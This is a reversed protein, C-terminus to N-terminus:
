LSVAKNGETQPAYLLGNDLHVTIHNIHSMFKEDYSSIFVHKLGREARHKNILDIFKLSTEQGLGVSPDDLLLVQPHTMMPRLLCSIKRVRGPIHAPREDKFKELEFYKLVEMVRRNAEEVDVLKHYLLPLMLNDYITRNNILGGYDFTYGIMLRYPLFEEFSMDVVDDDNILFKGSQPVILGGLIQLLTSKGAGQVSQILVNENTPFEFDANNLIPDQTEHQFFLGEFKLSKIQTGQGQLLENM